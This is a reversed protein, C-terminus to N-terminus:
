DSYDSLSQAEDARRIAEALPFDGMPRDSGTDLQVEVLRGQGKPIGSLLAM